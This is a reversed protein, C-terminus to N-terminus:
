PFISCSFPNFIQGENQLIINIYIVLSNGWLSSSTDCLGIPIWNGFNHFRSTCNQAGMSSAMPIVSFDFM